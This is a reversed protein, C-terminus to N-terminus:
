GFCGMRTYARVPLSSLRAVSPPPTPCQERSVRASPCQVLVFLRRTVVAFAFGSSHRVQSSSPQAERQQEPICSRVTTANNPRGGSGIRFGSERERHTKARHSSFSPFIRLTAVVLCFLVSRHSRFRAANKRRLHQHLQLTIVPFTVFNKPM